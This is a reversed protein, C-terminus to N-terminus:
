SGTTPDTTPQSAAQDRALATILETLPLGPDLILQHGRACGDLVHWAYGAVASILQERTLLPDPERAWRSVTAETMSVIAFTMTDTTPDDIVGVAGGLETVLTRAHAAINAKLARLADVDEPDDAAPGSRIFDYLRPHETIWDAVVSVTRRLIEHISGHRVDMATAVIEFLEAGVTGRARRELEDRGCFQRYVVSKALGSRHAVQQISVEAGGSSQELLEILAAM